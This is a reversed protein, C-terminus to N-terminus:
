YKLNSKLWNYLDKIKNFRPQTFELTCLQQFDKKYDPYRTEINFDNAEDLIDIMEDSVVLKTMKILRILDHIKPPITNNTDNVIHAKIAKELIM